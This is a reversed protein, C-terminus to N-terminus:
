YVPGSGVPITPRTVIPASGVPVRGGIALGTSTTDDETTDGDDATGDREGIVTTTAAGRVVEAAGVLVSAVDTAGVDLAGDV